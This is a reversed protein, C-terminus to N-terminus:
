LHGHSHSPCLTYIAIPNFFLYIVNILCRTTHSVTHEYTIYPLVNIRRATLPRTEHRNAKLTIYFWRLWVVYQLASWQALVSFWSEMFYSSLIIPSFYWRTNTYKEWIVFTLPKRWLSRLSLIYLYKHLLTYLIKIYM